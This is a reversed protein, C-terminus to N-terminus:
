PTTVGQADRATVCASEEFPACSCRARTQSNHGDRFSRAALVVKRGAHARRRWVAVSGIRDNGTVNGRGHAREGTERKVRVCVFMCLIYVFVCVCRRVCEIARTLARSTKKRRAFHLTKRRGRGAGREDDRRKWGRWEDCFGEDTHLLLCLTACLYLANLQYM